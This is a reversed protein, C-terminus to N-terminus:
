KQVGKLVAIASARDAVYVHKRVRALEM